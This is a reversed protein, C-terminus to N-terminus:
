SMDMSDTIEDLWKTREQRGLSINKRIKEKEQIDAVICETSLLTTAVSVANLLACVEVETPDIIGCAIM